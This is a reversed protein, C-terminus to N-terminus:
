RIHLRVKAMVVIEDRCFRFQRIAKGLIMDSQGNNYANSTDFARIGMDYSILNFTPDVRSRFHRNVSALKIHELSGEESLM